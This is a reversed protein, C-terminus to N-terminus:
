CSQLSLHPRFDGTLEGLQHGSDHIVGEGVERSITEQVVNVLSRADVVQRKLRGDLKRDLMRYLM